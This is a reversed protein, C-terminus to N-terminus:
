FYLCTWFLFFYNTSCHRCWKTNLFVLQVILLTAGKKDTLTM